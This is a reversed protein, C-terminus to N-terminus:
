NWKYSLVQLNIYREIQELIIVTDEEKLCIFLHEAM